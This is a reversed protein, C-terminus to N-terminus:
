SVLGLRRSTRWGSELRAATAVLGAATARRAHARADTGVAVFRIEHGAAGLRRCTAVIPGPDRASVLVLISGSPLRPPLGALLRNFGTSPTRSLRALLDGIAALHGLGPRPGLFATRALSRSWGNAAIGVAAGSVLLDRAISAATVVISELLEEDYALLWEPGDHSELNLALIANRPTSPDFRKSLPVGARATARQHIRRRSDGRQYPRVGAFLSPDEVVSLARARLAGSSARWAHPAEVPVSRPRVLLSADARREVSRTERGFLDAISLRTPGFMFVGRQDAVVHVRRIGREFPGMTWTSRLIGLGPRESPVLPADVVTMEETAFDDVRFWPIPLMKANRVTLRVEVTDGWVARPHVITREYTLRHLGHRTWLTALADALAALLGVLVLGPASTAAGGLILALLLLRRPTM